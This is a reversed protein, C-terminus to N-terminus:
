PTAEVVLRFGIAPTLVDAPVRERFRGAFAEPRDDGWGGGAVAGTLEGVAEDGAPALWERVNGALGAHGFPGIDLTADAVAAPQSRRAQATVAFAGDFVGGWPWIRAPDGATAAYEWEAATPLRARVRASAGVWAAYALADDRTINTVPTGALAAPITLDTPAGAAPVPTWVGVKASTRPVLLLEADEGRRLAAVPDLAFARNAPALVFARYQEHTIETTSLWFGGGPRAVWAFALGPVTPATTQWPLGMPTGPRVYVSGEAGDAAAVHYHGAPLSATGPVELTAVPEGAPALRTDPGPALRRITLRIAPGTVALAVPADLAAARSGDDFRRLAARNIRIGQDDERAEADAARRQYADALLAAATARLPHDVLGALGNWAALAHNELRTDAADATEASARQAQHAAWLPAKAALPATALDRTLRAVAATAEANTRAAQAREAEAARAAEVATGAAVIAAQVAAARARTEAVTQRFTALDAVAEPLASPAAGDKAALTFAAAAAAIERDTAAADGAQHGARARLAAQRGEDMRAQATSRLGAQVRDDLIRRVARLDTDIAGDGPMLQFAAALDREADELRGAQQHARGREALARAEGTRAQAAAAERELRVLEAQAARARELASAIVADGAVLAKAQTLLDIADDVAKRAPAGSLLGAAREALGKAQDRDRLDAWHLGAGAAAVALVVASSGIAVPVKHASIWAAAREITSRRRAAVAKGELYRRIDAAFDECTQYRDASAPALARTVIAALDPHLHPAAEALPTTKGIIAQAHLAKADAGNRPRQLSLLEFLTGGLAYIDSRGDIAHLDGRAQEMPMYHRSGMVTGQVTANLSEQSGPMPVITSAVPDSEEAGAGALVKAIGWDVVLVEGHGDIMINDPKIDRHVVGKSHAFGLGDLVKLFTLLLESETWRARMAADGEKLAKVVQGLSKGQIFKMTFFVTGDGLVGLDHIPVINPHELQATIRAEEIFRELIGPHVRASPKIIKIASRRGFDSDEIELVAGMGGAALFRRVCYRGHSELQELRRRLAAPLDANSRTAIEPFVSLRSMQLSADLGRDDEPLRENVRTRFGVTSRGGPVTGAVTAGGGPIDTMQTPAGPEAAAPPPAGLYTGEVPPAAAAGPGLYTGDSAPAPRPEPGQGLYTGDAAPAPRPDPGQGLYTETSGRETM